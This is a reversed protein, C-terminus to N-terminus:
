RDDDDRQQNGSQRDTEEHDAFEAVAGSIIETIAHLIHLRDAVLSCRNPGGHTHSIQIRSSSVPGGGAITGAAPPRSIGM